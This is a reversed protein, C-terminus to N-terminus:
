NLGGKKSVLITGKRSQNDYFFQESVLLKWM